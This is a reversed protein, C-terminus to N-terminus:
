FHGYPSLALANIKRVDKQQSQFVSNIKKSCEQLCYCDNFFFQNIMIKSLTAFDPNIDM